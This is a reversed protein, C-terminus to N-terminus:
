LFGFLVPSSPNFLSTGPLPPCHLSPGSHVGHVLGFSHPLTPCQTLCVELPRSCSFSTFDPNSAVFRDLTPSLRSVYVCVCMCVCVCWHCMCVCNKVVTVYYRRGVELPTRPNNGNATPSIGRWWSLWGILGFAYYIVLMLHLCWHASAVSDKGPAQTARLSVRPSLVRWSPIVPVGDLSPPPPLWDFAPRQELGSWGAFSAFPPPPYFTSPLQLQFSPLKFTRRDLSLAM